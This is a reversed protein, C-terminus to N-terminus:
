GATCYMGRSSTSMASSARVTALTNQFVTDATAVGATSVLVVPGSVVSWAVTNPDLAALLTNDDLRPAVALPLTARENVSSSGAGGVALGRVDYLQGVFGPKDTYTTSTQVAAAVPQGLATGSVQYTGGGVVTGGGLDFTEGTLAYSTSARTAQPASPAPSAPANAAAVAERREKASAASVATLGLLLAAVIQRCARDRM